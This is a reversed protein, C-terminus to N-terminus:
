IAVGDQVMKLVRRGCRCVLPYPLKLDMAILTADSDFDGKRRKFELITRELPLVMWDAAAQLVTLALEDTGEPVSNDMDVLLDAERLYFELGIDLQATKSAYWAALLIALARQPYATEPNLIIEAESGLKGSRVMRGALAAEPRGMADLGEEFAATVGWLHGLMSSPMAVTLDDMGAFSRIHKGEAGGLTAEYISRFGRAKPPHLYTEGSWTWDQEARAMREAWRPDGSAESVVSRAFAMDLGTRVLLGVALDNGLVETILRYGTTSAPHVVATKRFHSSISRSTGERVHDVLENVRQVFRPDSSAPVPVAGQSGRLADTLAWLGNGAGPALFYEPRTMCGLPDVEGPPATVALRRAPTM